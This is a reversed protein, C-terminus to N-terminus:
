FLSKKYDDVDQGILSSLAHQKEACDKCITLEDESLVDSVINPEYGTGIFFKGCDDCTHILKPGFVIGAVVLAAIIIITVIKKM